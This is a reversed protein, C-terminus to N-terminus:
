RCVVPKTTPVSGLDIPVDFVLTCRSGDARRGVLTVHSRPHLGGLYVEGRDAVPWETGDEGVVVSGAPFPSGDRERVPVIAGGSGLNKFRVTAPSRFYPAVYVKTDAVNTTLPLSSPDISIANARYAQLNPILIRGDRDTHGILANNLYVDVGPLNDLVAVGYSGSIQRALYAHGGVAAVAGRVDLEGQQERGDSAFAAQYDYVPGTGNAHTDLYPTAGGTATVAYSVGFPAISNHQVAISPVTSGGQYTQTASISNHGVLALLNVSLFRNRGALPNIANLAVQMGGISGGFATTFVHQLPNGGAATAAYTFDISSRGGVRFGVHAAVSGGADGDTPTGLDGYSASRLRLSLGYTTLLGTVDDSVLFQSGTGAVNRSLAAGVSVNGLTPVLWSGVSSAQALGESAEVHAEATFHDSVGHRETASFMPMSYTNDTGYDARAIGAALEFDDLGKRLLAASGFYSRDIVERQGLINRVVLQVNGEGDVQPLNDIRFTGPDVNQTMALVNNVYVDVTSPLTATGLVSAQPSTVFDPTAGYNTSFRVGAFRVNGGLTAEGDFADGLQLSRDHAVDDSQWTTALRTVHGPNTGAIETDVLVGSGVNVGAELAASLASAAASDLEGHVDYNLFAGRELLPRAAVVTESSKLTAEEFLAPPATLVLRQQAEDVRVDIPGLLDLRVYRHEGVDLRKLNASVRLRWARLDSEDFFFHGSADELVTAGDSVDLGNLRIAYLSETPTSGPEAGRAAASGFMVLVLVLSLRRIAAYM